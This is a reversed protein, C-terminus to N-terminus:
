TPLSIGAYVGFKKAGKAKFGVEALVVETDYDGTKAAPYRGISRLPIQQFDGGKPWAMAIGKLAGAADYYDKLAPELYLQLTNGWQLTINRLKVGAKVITEGSYNGPNGGQYAYGFAEMATPSCAVPFEMDMYQCQDKFTRELATRTTLDGVSTNNWYAYHRIGGTHRTSGSEFRLGNLAAYNIERKCFELAKDVQDQYDEGYAIGGNAMIAKETGTIVLKRAFIQFYNYIDDATPMAATVSSYEFAEAQEQIVIEVHDNDLLAAASTGLQARTCPTVGGITNTGTVVDGILIYEGTRPIRIYGGQQMGTVDDFVFSTAADNYGAGNNVQTSQPIIDEEGWQIKKSKNPEGQGLQLLTATPYNFPKLLIYPESFDDIQKVNATSLSTVLTPM